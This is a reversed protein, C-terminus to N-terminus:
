AKIFDLSVGRRGKNTSENLVKKSELRQRFQSPNVLLKIYAMLEPSPAHGDPMECAILGEIVGSSDDAGWGHDKNGNIADKVGQNFAEQLASERKAAHEKSTDSKKMKRKQPDARSM